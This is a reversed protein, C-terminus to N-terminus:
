IDLVVNIKNCTWEWVYEDNDGWNAYDEGAMELRGYQLREAPRDEADPNDPDINRNAYLEYLIGASEGLMLTNVSVSIWRANVMEGNYWIPVSVIKKM